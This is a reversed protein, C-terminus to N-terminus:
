FIPLIRRVEKISSVYVSNQHNHATRNRHFNYHETSSCLTHKQIIVSTCISLKFIPSQTYVVTFKIHAGKQDKDTIDYRCSPLYLGSWFETRRKESDAGRYSSNACM